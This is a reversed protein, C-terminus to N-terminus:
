IYIYMIAIGFSDIFVDRIRGERTPVFTQHIEDSIAYVISILVPLFFKEKLNIQHNNLSYFGRFLLFYLFAYEIIHLTKYILFDLLSNELTIIRPRSSLFFIVTM